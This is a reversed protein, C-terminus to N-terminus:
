FDGHECLPSTVSVHNLGDLDSAMVDFGVSLTIRTGSHVM